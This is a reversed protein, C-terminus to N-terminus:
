NSLSLNIRGTASQTTMLQQVEYVVQCTCIKGGIESLGHGQSLYPTTIQAPKLTIELKPNSLERFSIVNSCNDGGIGFDVKIINELSSGLVGGVDTLTTSTSYCREYGDKTKGWRGLLEAPVDMITQGSATLKVNDIAIFSDSQRVKAVDASADHPLYCCVYLSKVAGNEKLDVSFTQFLSANATALYSKPTEYTYNKILQTLMGDGYNEEILADTYNNPLERFEVQLDCKTISPPKVAGNANNNNGNGLKIRIRLPETFSTNLAYRDGESFFMDIPFIVKDVNVDDATTTTSRGMHFSREYARRVYDPMASAICAMGESTLLCIRRGSSLLEISEFNFLYGTVTQADATATKTFSADVYIRRILGNKPLDYDLTGNMVLQSSNVPPVSLYQVSHPPIINDEAYVFPNKIANSSELITAVLASNQNSNILVNSM